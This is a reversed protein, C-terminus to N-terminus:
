KRSSQRPASPSRQDRKSVPAPPQGLTPDALFDARYKMAVIIEREYASAEAFTKAGHANMIRAVVDALIRINGVNIKRDLLTAIGAESHILDSVKGEVITGDALTVRLPDNEPWYYSKSIKIQAVRFPMKRGARQFVATLRKDDIIKMVAANGVLEAGTAPDVVTMTRDPQVDLGFRHFDAQFATPDDTKMQQFVNSLDARGDALTVFQIFGISVYGTDYTQVTAFGGELKSIAAYIHQEGPTFGAAQFIANLEAAPMDKLQTDYSVIGKSFRYYAYRERMKTNDTYSYVDSPDDFTITYRQPAVANAFAPPNGVAALLSPPIPGPVAPGTGSHTVSQGLVTQNAADAARQAQWRDYALRAAIWTEWESNGAKADQTPPLKGPGATARQYAHFWLSGEPTLRVQWPGTLGSAVPAGITYRGPANWYTVLDSREQDTFVPVPPPPVPQQQPQSTGPTQPPFAPPPPPGQALVPATFLLTAALPLAARM